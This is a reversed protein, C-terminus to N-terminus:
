ETLTPLRDSSEIERRCLGRQMFAVAITNSIRDPCGGIPKPRGRRGDRRRATQLSVMTTSSQRNACGWNTTLGALRIERDTVRRVGYKCIAALRLYFLNADVVFAARFNVSKAPVRLAAAHGSLFVNPRTLAPSNPVFRLEVDAGGSDGVVDSAVISSRQDFRTRKSQQGTRRIELIRLEAHHETVVLSAAM